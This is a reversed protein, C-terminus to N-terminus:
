TYKYMFKICYPLFYFNGPSNQNKKQAKRQKDKVRYHQLYQKLTVFNWFKSEMEKFRM